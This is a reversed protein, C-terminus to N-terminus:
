RLQATILFRKPGRYCQVAMKFGKAVGAAHNGDLTGGTADLGGHMDIPNSAASGALGSVPTAPQGGVPLGTGQLGSGAAPRMAGATGPLFQQMAGQAQQLPVAPQQLPLAPPQPLVVAIKELIASHPELLAGSPLHFPRFPRMAMAAKIHKATIAQPSECHGFEGSIPPNQPTTPEYFGQEGGAPADFGATKTAPHAFDGADGLVSVVQPPAANQPSPIRLTAIAADLLTRVSAKKDAVHEPLAAYGGPQKKTAHAFELATSKPLKGQSALSFLKRQQARPLARRCM